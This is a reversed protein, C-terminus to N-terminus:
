VSGLRELATKAITRMNRAFAMVDIEVAIFSAGRARCEKQLDADMTLIGAAKGSAVIKEVADLVVTKVEDAGAQGIFGM